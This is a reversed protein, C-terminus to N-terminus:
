ASTPGRRETQLSQPAEWLRWVTQMLQPFYRPRTTNFEAAFASFFALFDSAIFAAAFYASGKEDEM